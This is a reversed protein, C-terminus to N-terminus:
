RARSFVVSGNCGGFGFSNSLAHGIDVQRSRTCVLDLAFTGDPRDVNLTPPIVQHKVSLVTSVAELAGAAGMVHGIAPKISSVPVRAAAEGFLNRIATYEMADNLPTGSGHLNIYGISEPEVGADDLAQKMVHIAGAGSPDPGTVHFADCSYGAGSCLAYGRPQESGISKELILIGAGEGFLTGDRESNFPRVIGPTLTNLASHGLYKMRDLTDVGGCIVIDYGELAIMDRAIGIANTGAACATTVIIAEGAIEYHSALEDILDPFRDFTEISEERCEELYDVSKGVLSMGLSTGLVLATKKAKLATSTHGSDILAEDIALRAFLSIRSSIGERRAGEVQEPTLRVEGAHINRLANKSFNTIPRIGGRGETLGEWFSGVDSGLACVSGLGTVMVKVTSKEM